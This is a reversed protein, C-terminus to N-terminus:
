RRRDGPVGLVSFLAEAAARHGGPDAAVADRTRCPGSTRPAAPPPGPAAAAAPRSAADAIGALAYAEEVRHGVARAVDRAERHLALAGAADGRRLRLRGAINLVAARRPPRAGTRLLELARGAHDTGTSRCLRQDADASLVLALAVEGPDQTGDCLARAAALCHAAEQCAGLGLHARALGTLATLRDRRGLLEAMAVAQVAADRAPEYQGRQEHLACLVALRGAEVAPPLTGPAAADELRRLAEPFRGLMVDCAALVTAARAAAVLDGTRDALEAGETAAAAAAASEGGKLCAVALQHLGAALPAAEGLRRACAVATAALDRLQEPRAATDLRGGIDGALRVAHRDHGRLGALAVASLLATRERAYWALARDPRTLDPLQAGCPPGAAAPGADEPFLADCAAAVASLYYELLREVAAGDEGAGGPAAPDGLLSRAFSRVLDHFAYLGVDPQQLLHVDLLSELVDEAQRTGTGLLAAAAHVNIDGGPHLALLRFAARCREDLVQYSLRLTASVSRAGSSLEDLRRTEDRLRETLYRLTWRPRNRLRATAIRLALPLHGCLRALEAAAEPEAAVRAAGLTGAVMAASEAPTLVGVSIWRAGDLDVLRARSTILVLCGTSAPLLPRVVDADGANDLLILLRKGALRTRWLATRGAQDAPIRDGPTGLARLLSELAAAATVPPDGPTHGRLDLHLLGDPCGPALLHAARVALATKGCGGMGDLAVVLPGRGGSERACRLLERLERDRGTFDALDCPLTRPPGIPVAEPAPPGALEPGERLIAGHLATLRPGPDVGLEAVLTARVAAYEELAEAQRGCRYLALMLRGRLPECLPYQAVLERLDAVLGAAEGGALRLDFFQEAAALRREELTTSAADIVPGGGGSLVPGRWLALAGRLVEVAAPGEGEGALRRARRTLAAFEAADTQTDTVAARYGPGDTILLGPGGPIRRRLDAVAKRVQHAATPPPNGDWAAEVLRSVPLVKGPALLLTTLVREQIVGGLRLRTGNAWGEVPGLINFRLREGPESTM